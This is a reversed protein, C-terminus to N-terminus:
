EVSGHHLEGQVLIEAQLNTKALSIASDSQGEVASM